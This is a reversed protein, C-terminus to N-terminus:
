ADADADEARGHGDSDRLPLLTPHAGRAVPFAPIRLLEVHIAIEAMREEMAAKLQLEQQELTFVEDARRNLQKRMRRIELKLINENVM